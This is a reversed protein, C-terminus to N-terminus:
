LEYYTGELCTSIINAYGNEEDCEDAFRYTAVFNCYFYYILFNTYYWVDNLWDTQITTLVDQISMQM